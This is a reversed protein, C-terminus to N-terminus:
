WVYYRLSSSMAGIAHHGMRNTARAEEEEEEEEEKKKQKKEKKEDM